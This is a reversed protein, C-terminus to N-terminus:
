FPGATIAHIAIPAPGKNSLTVRNFGTRWVKQVTNAPTALRATMLTTELQVHGVPLGNIEVDVVAESASTSDAYGEIELQIGRDQLPRVPLVLTARRGHIWRVETKEPELEESWGEFLFRDAREELVLRYRSSFPEYGLEDYRDLPLGEKLAFWVNHPFAFPYFRALRPIWWNAPERLLTDFRVATERPITHTHFQVMLAANWGIIATVLATAVIMPRRRLFDLVLALGPALVVLSSVFRRAGFAWSGHWDHALGNALWTGGFVLV